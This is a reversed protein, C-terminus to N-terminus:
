DRRCPVQCPTRPGAPPPAGREGLAREVRASFDREDRRYGRAELCDYARYLAAVPDMWYRRNAEHTCDAVDAEMEAGSKTPHSVTATCAALAAFALPAIHHRFKM